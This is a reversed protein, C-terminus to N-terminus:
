FMLVLHSKLSEILIQWLNFNLQDEPVNPM